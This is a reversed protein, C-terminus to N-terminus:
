NVLDLRMVESWPSAASSSLPSGIGLPLAVTGVATTQLPVADSEPPAKNIDKNDKEAKERQQIYKRQLCNRKDKTLSLTSYSSLFQASSDSM